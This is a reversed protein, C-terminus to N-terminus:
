RKTLSIVADIRALCHATGSFLLKSFSGGLAEKADAPVGKSMISIIPILTLSPFIVKRNLYRLSDLRSM